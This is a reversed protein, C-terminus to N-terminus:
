LSIKVSSYHDKVMKSVVSKLEMDLDSLRSVIEQIAESPKTQHYYRFGDPIKAIVELFFDKIAFERVSYEKETRKAVIYLKTSKLHKEWLVRDMLYLTLISRIDLSDEPLVIWLGVYKFAYNVYQRFAREFDFNTPKTEVAVGEGLFDPGAGKQPVVKKRTQEFYKGIVERVEKEEL